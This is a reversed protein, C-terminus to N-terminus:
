RWALAAVVVLGLVFLAVGAWRRRFRSGTEPRPPPLETHLTGGSAIQVAMEKSLGSPTPDFTQLLKRDFFQPADEQFDEPPPPETAPGRV